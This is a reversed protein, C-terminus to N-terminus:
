EAKEAKDKKAKPPFLILEGNVPLSHLRVNYGNKSNAWAAGIEHFFSKGNSETATYVRMDPKKATDSM